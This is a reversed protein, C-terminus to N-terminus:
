GLTSFQSQKPLDRNEALAPGADGGASEFALWDRFARKRGSRAESLYRKLLKHRKGGPQTMSFQERRKERVLRRATPRLWAAMEGSELRATIAMVDIELELWDDSIEEEGAEFVRLARESAVLRAEAQALALARIGRDDGPLLDGTSIEPADHIIAFWAAVSEPAPRATAGHRRANSAVVAKGQATRPGTSKRANARNRAIIAQSSM